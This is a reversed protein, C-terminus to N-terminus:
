LKSKLTKILDQRKLIAKSVNSLRNISYKEKYIYGIVVGIVSYLYWQNFMRTATIMTLIIILFVFNIELHKRKKSQKKLIILKNFVSTYFFIFILFGIIGLETLQIMYESHQTLGSENYFRYNGLGIGTIPNKKFIQWGLYYFIGRDGFNDIIVNGTEFDLKDGQETTSLIREGLTSNHIIFNLPLLIIALGIVFKIVTIFINKSRNIILHGLILMLAGGFATRSGTYIIIFLPIVSLILFLKLSSSKYIFKLYLFMLLVTSMIGVTNSNMDGGYRDQGTSKNFILVIIISVYMGVILVNILRNQDKLVMFSITIMLIYPVILLTFITTNPIELGNGIIVSNLISYIVWFCWIILPKNLGIRVFDKKVIMLSIFFITLLLITKSAGDVKLIFKQFPVWILVMFIYFYEFKLYKKM